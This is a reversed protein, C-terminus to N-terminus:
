SGYVRGIENGIENLLKLSLQPDTACRADRQDLAYVREFGANVYEQIGLCNTGVVAIVPIGRERARAAMTAPLKGALSQHDLAGEGTIVLQCQSLVEDIDLLDLIYDAGPVRTAGILLAAFGLGGGAGAGPTLRASRSREAWLGSGDELVSVLHTLGSELAEVQQPNAGKQPSYLRAAGASGLLPSNVDSALVIQTTAVRPDLHSFDAKTISSLGRGGPPIPEGSGNLFRAGLGILFGLGGDTSATGGVGLVVTRAGLDLAERVASGIGLTTAGLPDLQGSLFRLGCFEAAEIFVVEGKRAFTAPGNKASLVSTDLTHVEFGASTIADISGDGGDALPIIRVIARGSLGAGLAEAVERASLTGKFKDPAILVM